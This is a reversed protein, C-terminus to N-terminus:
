SNKKEIEQKRISFSWIILTFAVLSGLLIVYLKGVVLATVLTMLFILFGIVQLTYFKPM